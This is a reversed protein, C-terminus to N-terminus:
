RASTTPVRVFFKTKSLGVGNLLIKGEDKGSFFIMIRMSLFTPLKSLRISFPFEITTMGTNDPPYVKLNWFFTGFPLQTHQVPGGLSRYSGCPRVRSTLFRRCGTKGCLACLCHNQILFCTWPFPQFFNIKWL